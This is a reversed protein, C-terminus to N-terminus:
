YQLADDSPLHSIPEREIWMEIHAKNISRFIIYYPRRTSRDISHLEVNRKLM